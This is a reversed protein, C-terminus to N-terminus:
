ATKLMSNKKFDQRENPVFLEGKKLLNEIFINTTSNDTYFPGSLKQEQYIYYIRDFRMFRKCAIFDELSADRLVIDFIFECTIEEPFSTLVGVLGFAMRHYLNVFDTETHLIFPGSIAKTKQDLYFVTANEKVFQKAMLNHIDGAFLDQKSANVIAAPARLYM